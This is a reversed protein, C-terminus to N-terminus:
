KLNDKTCRGLILLAPDSTVSGTDNSVKCRYSGEDECSTNSITLTPADLGQLKEEKPSLPMWNSEGEAAPKWEWCFHLPEMGSAKAAFTVNSGASLELQHQPMGILQLPEVVRLCESAPMFQNTYNYMYWALMGIELTVASSTAIGAHNSVVCRYRGQNAKQLGGLSITNSSHSDDALPM